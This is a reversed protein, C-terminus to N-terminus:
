AVRVVPAMGDPYINPLKPLNGTLDRAIALLDRIAAQWKTESYLNCM